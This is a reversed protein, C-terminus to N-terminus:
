LFFFNFLYEHLYRVQKRLRYKQEPKWALSYNNQELLIIKNRLIGAFGEVIYKDQVRLVRPVSLPVMANGSRKSFYERLKVLKPAQARAMSVRLGVFSRGSRVGRVIGFSIESKSSIVVGNLIYLCFELVPKLNWITQYCKRIFFTIIRFSFM